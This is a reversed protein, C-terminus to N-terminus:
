LSGVCATDQIIYRGVGSNTYGLTHDIQCGREGAGWM